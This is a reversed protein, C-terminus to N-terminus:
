ASIWLTEIFMNLDLAPGKKEKRIKTNEQILWKMLIRKIIYEKTFRVFERFLLALIITKEREPSETRKASLDHSFTNNASKNHSFFITRQSFFIHSALRLPRFHGLFGPRSAMILQIQISSHDHTKANISSSYLSIASEREAYANCRRRSHHIM